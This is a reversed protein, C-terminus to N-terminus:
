DAFAHNKGILATEYGARKLVQPLTIERDPLHIHNARVRNTHPYRGTHFAARAPTCAPYNCIGNDVVVGGSALADIAPTRTHRNGYIALTDAKQQDTMVVLVNPRDAAM